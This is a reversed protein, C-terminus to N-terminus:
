RGSNIRYWFIMLSKAMKMGDKMISVKSKGETREKWIIPVELIRYGRRKANVLLETDWFFNNSKIAPLIESLVERKFAKVGCQHDRVGTSFLMRVFANYSLSALSRSASRKIVSGKMSRSGIVMDYNRLYGLMKSIYDLSVPFDADIMFINSSSSANFANKLAMGKGLRVRSHLHRVNSDKRALGMLITDTGDKSGDESVIIEYTKYNKSLFDSLKLINKEIFEAENCAPILVSIDKM